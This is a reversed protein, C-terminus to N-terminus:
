CLEFDMVNGHGTWRMQQAKRKRISRKGIWLNLNKRSTSPADGLNSWITHNRPYHILFERNPEFHNGSILAFNGTKNKLSNSWYVASYRSNPHQTRKDFRLFQCCERYKGQKVPFIPLSPNAPSQTWWWGGKLPKRCVNKHCVTAIRRFQKCRRSIPPKNQLYNFFM